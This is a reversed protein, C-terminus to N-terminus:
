VIQNGCWECLRIRKTNPNKCHPCTDPIIVQTNNSAMTDIIPINDASQSALPDSLGEKKKFIYSSIFLSSSTFSLIVFFGLFDSSYGWWYGVLIFYCYLCVTYLLSIVIGTNEMYDLIPINDASLSALPSSLGEKKKLNHSLIFLVLSIFSTFLLIGFPLYFYWFLVLWLASTLLSFVIGLGKFIISKNM